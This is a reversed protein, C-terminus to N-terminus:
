NNSGIVDIGCPRVRSPTPHLFEEKLVRKSAFLEDLAGSSWVSELLRRANKVCDAMGFRQRHEIIPHCAKRIRDDCDDSLASGFLTEDRYRVRLRANGSWNTM